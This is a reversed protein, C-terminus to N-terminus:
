QAMVLLERFLQESRVFGKETLWVSEAKGAPDGILGKPLRNM